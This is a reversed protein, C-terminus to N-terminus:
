LAIYLKYKDIFLNIKRQMLSEIKIEANAFSLANEDHIFRDCKVLYIAIKNYAM